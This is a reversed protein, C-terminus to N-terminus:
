SKNWLSSFPCKREVPEPTPSTRSEKNLSTPVSLPSVALLVDKKSGLSLKTQLEYRVTPTWKMRLCLLTLLVGMELRAFAQGLCNNPGVGFPIFPPNKGQSYIDFWREPCFQAGNQGWYRTDKQPFIVDLSITTGRPIFLDQIYTDKTCERAIAYAPPFLRLAENILGQIWKSKKAFEIVDEASDISYSKEAWELRVKNQFEETCHHLLAPLVSGVTIQGALFLFRAMGEIKEQSFLANGQADKAESLIKLLSTGDASRKCAELSIDAITQRAKKMKRKSLPSRMKFVRELNLLILKMAEHLQHPDEVYGIFHDIIVQSSFFNLGESANVMPQHLWTDIMTKARSYLNAGFRKDVHQRFFLSMAQRLSAHEDHSLVFLIEGLEQQFTEGIWGLSFSSGPSHPSADQHLIEKIMEPCAIFVFKRTKLFGWPLETFAYRKYTGDGQSLRKDIFPLFDGAKLIEIIDWAIQVIRKM